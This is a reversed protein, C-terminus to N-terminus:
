NLIKNNQSTRESFHFTHILTQCMGTVNYILSKELHIGLYLRYIYKQYFFDGQLIKIGDRRKQIKHNPLAM